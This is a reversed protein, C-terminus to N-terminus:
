GALKEKIDRRNITWSCNRELVTNFSIGRNSFIFKDNLFLM